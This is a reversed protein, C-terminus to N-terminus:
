CYFVGMLFYEEVLVLVVCSGGFYEYFFLDVGVKDFSVYFIGFFSRDFVGEVDFRFLFGLYGVLIDFGVIWILFSGLEVGDLGSVRRNWFGEGFM